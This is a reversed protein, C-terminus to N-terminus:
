YSSSVCYVSTPASTLGPWLGAGGSCACAQMHTLAQMEEASGCQFAAEKVNRAGAGLRSCRRESIRSSLLAVSMANPIPSNSCGGVALRWCMALLSRQYYYLRCPFLSSMRFAWFILLLQPLLFNVSWNHWRSLDLISQTRLQMFIESVIQTGFGKTFVGQLAAPTCAILSTINWHVKGM